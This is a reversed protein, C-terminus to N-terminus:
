VDSKCARVANRVDAGAALLQLVLAGAGCSAAIYLATHENGALM